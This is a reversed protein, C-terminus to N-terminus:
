FASSLISAGGFAGSVSAINPNKQAARKWLYSVGIIVGGVVLLIGGVSRANMSKTESTDDKSKAQITDDPDSNLIYYLGVGILIVGVFTSIWMNVTTYGRGLSALAGGRNSKNNAKPPMGYRLFFFRHADQFPDTNTVWLGVVEWHM